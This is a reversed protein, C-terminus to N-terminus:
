ALKTEGISFIIVNKQFLFDLSSTQNKKQPSQKSPFNPPIIVLRLTFIKFKFFKYYFATNEM